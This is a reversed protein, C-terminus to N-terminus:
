LIYQFIVWFDGLCKNFMPKRSRRLASSIQRFIWLFTKPDSKLPYDSEVVFVTHCESNSYHLCSKPSVSFYKVLIRVFYFKGGCDPLGKM